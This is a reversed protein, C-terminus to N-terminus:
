GLDIPIFYERFTNYPIIKLHQLRGVVISPHTHYAKAFNEIVEKTISTEKVLKRVAKKPLLFNAAFEDAEKEKKENLGPYDFNELSVYKKGHKLVHAVEHFFTFWFIDNRKYHGTMQIVPSADYWRTAGHISLGPLAPTYVLIVGATLCKEQLIEFFDAPQTVILERLLKILSKFGKESYSPATMKTKRGQIQGHRLWATLAAAQKDQDLQLARFAVQNKPKFYYDQWTEFSLIGFFQLLEKVREKAKRTDRVWGHKVMEGYPFQRAWAISEAEKKALKEDLKQREQFEDYLRQAEGWFRAPIQLVQEFKVAMEATISSKENLVKSITNAPKETRVAFEKSSMGREELAEKLIAGPHTVTEPTYTNTSM